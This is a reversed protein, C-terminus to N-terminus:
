ISFYARTDFYILYHFHSFIEVDSLANNNGTSAKQAIFSRSCIFTCLCFTCNCKHVHLYGRGMVQTFPRALPDLLLGYKLMIPETSRKLWIGINLAIGGATGSIRFLPVRRARAWKCIYGVMPKQLARLQHTELWVAFNRVSRGATLSILLPSCTCSGEYYMSM